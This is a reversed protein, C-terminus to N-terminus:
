GSRDFARLERMKGRLRVIRRLRDSPRRRVEEYLSAM